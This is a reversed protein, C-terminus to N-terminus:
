QRVFVSIRRHYSGEKKLFVEGTKLDCARKRINEGVEVSKLVKVKQDGIIKVDEQMIICDSGSPPEAGTFIRAVTGKELSTPNSGAPIRQSVYIRERCSKVLAPLM